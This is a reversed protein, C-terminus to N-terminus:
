KLGMQQNLDAVIIRKQQGSIHALEMADGLDVVLIDSDNFASVSQTQGKLFTTQHFVMGGEPKIIRIVIDSM